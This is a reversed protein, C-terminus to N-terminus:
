LFRFKMLDNGLARWTDKDQAMDFCDMVGCGVNQLDMKVNVEWRRSHRGNPGNGEPKGVLGTHM